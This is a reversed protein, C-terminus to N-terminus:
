TSARFAGSLTMTPARRWHEDAFDRVMERVMVARRFTFDM